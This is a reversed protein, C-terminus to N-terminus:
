FGPLIGKQSLVRFDLCPIRFKIGGICIGSNCFSADFYTDVLTGTGGGGDPCTSPEDAGSEDSHVDLRHVNTANGLIPYWTEAQLAAVFDDCLNHFSTEQAAAFGEAVLVVNMRSGDPGNDLIKTTAQVTGDTSGM